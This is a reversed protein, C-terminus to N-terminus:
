ARPDISVQDMAIPESMGAFGKVIGDKVVSVAKAWM